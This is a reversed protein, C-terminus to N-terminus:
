CCMHGCALQVLQRLTGQVQLGSELLAIAPASPKLTFACRASSGREGEMCDGTGPDRCPCSDVQVLRLRCRVQSSLSMWIAPAQGWGLHGGFWSLWANSATAMLFLVMSDGGSIYASIACWPLCPHLTAVIALGTPAATTVCVATAVCAQLTARLQRPANVEIVQMAACAHSQWCWM